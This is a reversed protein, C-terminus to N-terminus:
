HTNNAWDWDMKFILAINLNLKLHFFFILVNMEYLITYKLHKNSM